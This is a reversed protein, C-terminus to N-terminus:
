NPLKGAVRDILIQEDEKRLRGLCLPLGLYRYPLGTVAAQFSGLIMPLHIGEYNISVIELKSINTSLCTTTGFLQLLRHLNGMYSAKSRTFLATDDAYMSTRLKVPDADIPHLLDRYTAM